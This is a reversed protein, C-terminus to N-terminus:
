ISVKSELNWGGTQYMDFNVWVSGNRFAWISCTLLLVTPMLAKRKFLQKAKREADWAGGDGWWTELLVSTNRLQLFQAEAQHHAPGTQGQISQLLTGGCPEFAAGEKPGHGAKVWVWHCLHKWSKFTPTHAYGGSAQEETQGSTWHSSCTFKGVRSGYSLRFGFGERYYKRQCSTSHAVKKNWWTKTKTKKESRCFDCLAPCEVDTPENSKQNIGTNQALRSVLMWGTHGGERRQTRKRLVECPELGIEAWGEGWGDVTWGHAWCM